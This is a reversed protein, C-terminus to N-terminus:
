ATMLPALQRVNRQNPYRKALAAYANQITRRQTASRTSKVLILAEELQQCAWEPESSQTYTQARLVMLEVHWRTMHPQLNKQALGIADMALETDGLRLAGRARDQHYGFANLQAGSSDDELNGRRLIRGAEDMYRHFQTTSEVSKPLRTVVEGTMQYVYGRLNDRAGRAHEVARTMDNMAKDTQQQHLLTRARRFLSAALLESNGLEKAVMVSDNHYHMASVYDTEDRSAVAALQDFRCLLTLVHSRHSSDVNPALKHLHNEWRKIGDLNRQVASNYFSEWYTNLTSEYRLLTDTDITTKGTTAPIKVESALAAVQSLGLLVPPIALVQGLLRRRSIQQPEAINHKSLLQEMRREGVEWGLSTLRQALERTKFGQLRSYHSIVEGMHPLGDEGPQFPGYMRWWAEDSM